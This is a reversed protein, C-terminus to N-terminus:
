PLVREVLEWRAEEDTMRLKGKFASMISELDGPLRFPSGSHHEVSACTLRCPGPALVRVYGGRDIVDAGPNLDRLAAIVADTMGGPQLVPGV